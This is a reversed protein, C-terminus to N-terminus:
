HKATGRGRLAEKVRVGTQINLLQVAVTFDILPTREIMFFKTSHIFEYLQRACKRESKGKKLLPPEWHQLFEDEYDM